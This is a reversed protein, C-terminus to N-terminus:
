DDAYVRNVLEKFWRPRFIVVYLGLASTIPIPGVSFIMFVVFVAACKFRTASSAKM